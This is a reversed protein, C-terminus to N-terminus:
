FLMACTVISIKTEEIVTIYIIKLRYWNQKYTYVLQTFVNWLLELQFSRMIGLNAEEYLMQLLLERLQFVSFRPIFDFVPNVLVM